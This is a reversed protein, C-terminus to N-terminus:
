CATAFGADGHLTTACSASTSDEKEAASMRGKWFAGPVNISNGILELPKKILPLERAAVAARDQGEAACVPPWAQAVNDTLLLLAVRGLLERGRNRSFLSHPGKQHGHISSYVM